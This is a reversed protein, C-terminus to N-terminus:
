TADAQDEWRGQLEAHILFAQSGLILQYEQQQGDGFTVSLPYSFQRSTELINNLTYRNEIKSLLCTIYGKKNLTDQVGPLLVGFKLGLRLDKLATPRLCHQHEFSEQDIWCGGFM